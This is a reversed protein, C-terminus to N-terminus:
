RAILQPTACTALALPLDRADMGHILPHDLDIALPPIDHEALGLSRRGNAATDAWLDATGALLAARTQGDRRAGTEMERIEEFPDIRVQSDSGIALRVAADRYALAPLHGDGLNGETTPCTVVTVDNAALLAIDAATVHIGHVVSATPGLFGTRDLLQAPSCGHEARCEDIERTQEHAHVHRV